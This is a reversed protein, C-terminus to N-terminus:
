RSGRRVRHLRLAVQLEARRGAVPAALLGEIERIRNRVTHEHVGLTAAASVHSGSALWALLTERLREAREDEEALPGLEAAVFAAARERDDLLLAELRVDAEHVVAPADDGLAAQVRAAQLAQARTRRFGEVGSGPGGIAARGVGGLARTLRGIAPARFPEPAGLWLGWDHLGDRHLLLDAASVTERLRAALADPRADGGTRLLLFLHNGGVRYGLVPEFEAPTGLRGELLDRLVIDRLHERGARRATAVREHQALVPTLTHNIYAFLQTSPWELYDDLPRGSRQAHDRAVRFWASWFSNQGARYAGELRSAPLRLEAVAGAFALAGPRPRTDQVRVAGTLIARLTLVQDRVSREALAAFAADDARDPFADALVRETLARTVQELDLRQAADRIEATASDTAPAATM